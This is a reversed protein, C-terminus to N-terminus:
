ERFTLCEKQKISKKRQFLHQCIGSQSKKYSKIIIKRSSQFVLYGAYMGESMRNAHTLFRLFLSSRKKVLEISKIM